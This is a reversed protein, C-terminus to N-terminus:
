NEGDYRENGENKTAEENRRRGHFRRAHEATAAVLRFNNGLLKRVM